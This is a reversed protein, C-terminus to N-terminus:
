LSDGIRFVGNEGGLAEDTSAEIVFSGLLVGLVQRVLDGAGAVAVGPDLGSAVLVGRLL